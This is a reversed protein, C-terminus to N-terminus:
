DSSSHDHRHHADPFHPHSHRLPGHRHWHSHSLLLEPGEHHQHHEDHQHFHEHELEEHVHMHEHSETVHLWVGLAMLSGAIILQGTVPESLMAIAALAGLFPATAFYASTRAAGLERLALVFLGLSVGYGLFGVLGAAAMFPVTPRPSGILAALTMNASGAVLGKIASLHAANALSVRRTLNNDIAWLLCAALICASPLLSLGAVQGGWVLIGGGASIALFGLGVRWNVHERFVVWAIVSTFVGEFILLLSANSATTAALGLMLLVPALIGGALVAGVLWPLDRPPVNWRQRRFVSVSALGVGSGLYLLGALMWPSTGVLLSKALPITVGFLVAAGLAAGIGRRQPGTVSM